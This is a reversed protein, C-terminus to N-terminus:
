ILVCKSWMKQYSTKNELFSLQLSDVALVPVFMQWHAIFVQKGKLNLKYSPLDNYLSLVFTETIDKLINLNSHATGNAPTTTTTARTTTLPKETIGFGFDRGVAEFEMLASLILVCM